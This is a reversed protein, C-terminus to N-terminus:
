GILTGAVHTSHNSVTTAGDVQTLRSGFDPHLAVAGGDWEGVTIGFGDLSLGASGGPWVDDTSVTDAADINNTIYFQPGLGHRFRQLELVRGGSLQRRIPIGLRHAVDGAELRDQYDRLSLQEALIQLRETRTASEVDSQARADSCLLVAIFIALFQIPTKTM